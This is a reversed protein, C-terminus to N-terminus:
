AEQTDNPKSNSTRRRGRRIEPIMFSTVILFLTGVFTPPFWRSYSSGCLLAIVGALLLLVGVAAFFYYIRLIWTKIKGQPSVYSIVAGGVGLIAAGVGGIFVALTESVSAPESSWISAIM